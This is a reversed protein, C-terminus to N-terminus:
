EVLRKLIAKLRPTAALASRLGEVDDPSIMLPSRQFGGRHNYTCFRISVSGAPELKLQDVIGPHLTPITCASDLLFTLPKENIKGPILIRNHTLHIKVTIPAPNTSQAFVPAALLALMTAWSRVREM